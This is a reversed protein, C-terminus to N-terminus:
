RFQFVNRVCDKAISAKFFCLHLDAGSLSGSPIWPRFFLLIDARLLM